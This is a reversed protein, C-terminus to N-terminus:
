TQVDRNSRSPTRQGMRNEISSTLVRIRGNTRVSEIKGSDIWVHLTEIDTKLVAAAKELTLLSPLEVGDFIMGSDSGESVGNAESVLQSHEHM